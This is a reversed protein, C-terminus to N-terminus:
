IVVDGSQLGTLFKLIDDDNADAEPEKKPLLERFDMSNLEERLIQQFDEMLKQREDYQCIMDCLVNMRQRPPYATLITWAKQHRPDGPRFVASFRQRDTMPNWYSM